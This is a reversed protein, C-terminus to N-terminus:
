AIEIIILIQLTYEKKVVGSHKNEMYYLTNFLQIKSVTKKERFIDGGHSSALFQNLRWIDSSAIM